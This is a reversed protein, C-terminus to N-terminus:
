LVGTVTVFCWFFAAAILQFDIYEYSRYIIDLQNEKSVTYLPETYIITKLIEDM